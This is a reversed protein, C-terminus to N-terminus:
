KVDLTILPYRGISGRQTVKFYRSAAELIKERSYNDGCGSQEIWKVNQCDKLDLRNNFIVRQHCIKRLNKFILDHDLYGEQFVDSGFFLYQYTNLVTVTQFSGGFEDIREALEHLRLKEFATRTNNLYAQITRCVNVGEETVDIGLSRTCSPMESAAFVFYGKSCGIEAFSANNEPYLPFIKKCRSALKRKPKITQDSLQYTHNSPYSNEVYKKIAQIESLM